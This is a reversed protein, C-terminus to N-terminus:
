KNVEQELIQVLLNRLTSKCKNMVAVDNEKDTMYFMYSYDYNGSDVFGGLMIKVCILPIGEINSISFNVYHGRSMIARSYELIQWVDEIGIYEIEITKKM